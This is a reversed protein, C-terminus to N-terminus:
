YLDSSKIEVDKYRNGYKNLINRIFPEVENYKYQYGITISKLTKAPFSLEIYPIIETDGRIRYMVGTDDMKFKYEVAGEIDPNYFANIHSLEKIRVYRIENEIDFDEDKIFACLNMLEDIPENPNHNFVGKQRWYEISNNIDKKSSYLVSEFIDYTHQPDNRSNKHSVESLVEGDLTLCIGKGDNCYLRWMNRYDPIDCLSLVFTDKAFWKELNQEPSFNIYPQQNCYDMVTNRAWIQEHPDNLHDYRTAWLCINDKVIGELAELTTYHYVLNDM